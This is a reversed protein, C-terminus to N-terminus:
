PEIVSIYASDNNAVYARDNAIIVGEPRAGVEVEWRDGGNGFVTVTDSGRNTVYIWGNKPNVAVGRPESGGTKVENVQRTEVNILSISDSGENAVVVFKGNAGLDAFTVAAPWKGVAINGM